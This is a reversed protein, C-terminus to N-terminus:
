AAKERRYIEGAKKQAERYPIGTSKTLEKAIRNIEAIPTLKKATKVPAEKKEPAPDPTLKKVPAGTNLFIWRDRKERVTVHKPNYGYKKCVRNLAEKETKVGWKKAAQKKNIAKM